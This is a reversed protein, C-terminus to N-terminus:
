GGILEIQAGLLAPKVLVRASAVEQQTGVTRISVDLVFPDTLHPGPTSHAVSLAPAFCVYVGPSVGQVYPRKTADVLTDYYAKDAAVSQLTRATADSLPVDEYAEVSVLLHRTEGPKIKRDPRDTGEWGLLHPVHTGTDDGWPDFVSTREIGHPESDDSVVAEVVLADDNTNTVALRTFHDVVDHTTSSVLTSGDAQPIFTQTVGLERRRQSPSALEVTFPKM